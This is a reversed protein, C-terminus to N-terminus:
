SAANPAAVRGMPCRSRRVVPIGGGRGGVLPGGLHVARASRRVTCGTCLCPRLGVSAREPRPYGSPDGRAAPAKSLSGRADPTRRREVATERISRGVHRSRRRPLVRRPGIARGNWPSGARQAPIRARSWPGPGDRVAEGACGGSTHHSSCRRSDVRADAACWAHPVPHVGTTGIAWQTRYRVASRQGGAPRDRGM